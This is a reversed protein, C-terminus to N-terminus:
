QTNARFKKWRREGHFQGPRDCIRRVRAVLGWSVCLRTFHMRITTTAEEEMDAIWMTWVAISHSDEAVGVGRAAAAAVVIAVIEAEGELGRDMHRIEIDEAVAVRIAAVIAVAVTTTEVEEDTIHDTIATDTRHNKHDGTRATLSTLFTVRMNARM